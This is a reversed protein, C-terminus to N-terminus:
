QVKHDSRYSKTVQDAVSKLNSDSLKKGAPAEFALPNTGNAQTPFKDTLVNTADQSGTGPLTLNNNTQLGSSRALLSIVVVIALWGLLFLVRNRTCLHGLRYLPGAM